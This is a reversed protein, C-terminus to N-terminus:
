RGAWALKGNKGEELAVGIKGEELVSWCMEMKRWWKDLNTAGMQGLTLLKMREESM